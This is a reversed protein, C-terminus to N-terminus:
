TVYWRLIEKKVKKTPGGIPPLGQALAERELAEILEPSLNLPEM